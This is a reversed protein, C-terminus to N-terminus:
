ISKVWNSFGPDIFLIKIENPLRIILFEMKSFLLRDIELIRDTKTVKVNQQEM